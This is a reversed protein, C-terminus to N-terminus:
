CVLGPNRDRHGRPLHIIADTQLNARGSQSKGDDATYATSAHVHYIDEEGVRKVRLNM